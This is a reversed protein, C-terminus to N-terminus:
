RAGEKLRAEFKVNPNVASVQKNRWEIVLKAKDLTAYSALYMWPGGGLRIEVAYPLKSM